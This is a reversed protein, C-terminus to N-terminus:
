FFISFIYRFTLRLSRSIILTKIKIFYYALIFSLPSLWLLNWKNINFILSSILVLYLIVLGLKEHEKEFITQLSFSTLIALGSIGFFIYYEFFSM